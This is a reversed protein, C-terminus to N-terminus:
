IAPPTAKGSSSVARGSELVDDERNNALASTAPNAAIPTTSAMDALARTLYTPRRPVSCGAAIM